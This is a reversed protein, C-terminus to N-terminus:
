EFGDMCVRTAGDDVTVIIPKAWEPKPHCSSRRHAYGSCIETM